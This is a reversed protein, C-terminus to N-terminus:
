KWVGLKTMDETWQVVEAENRIELRALVILKGIDEVWRIM